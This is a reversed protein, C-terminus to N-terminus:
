EPKPAPTKLKALEAQLAAIQQKLSGIQADAVSECQLAQRLLTEVTPQYQHAPQGLGPTAVALPAFIFFLFRVALGKSVSYVRRFM